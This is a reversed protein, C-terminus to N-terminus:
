YTSTICKGRKLSTQPLFLTNTYPGTSFLFRSTKVKFRRTHQTPSPADIYVSITTSFLQILFLLRFICIHRINLRRHGAVLYSKISYLLVYYTTYMSLGGNTKWYNSFPEYMMTKNVYFCTLVCTVFYYYKNHIVRYGIKCPMWRELFPSGEREARPTTSLGGKCSTILSTQHSKLWWNEPQGRPGASFRMRCYIQVFKELYLLAFPARSVWDIRGGISYGQKKVGRTIKPSPWKQLFIVSGIAKEVTGFFLGLWVGVSLEGNKPTM